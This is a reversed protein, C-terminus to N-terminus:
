AAFAAAAGCSDEFMEYRLIKGEGVVIHLAFASRFTKGTAPVEHAFNGLVIANDGDVLIRDIDFLVTKVKEAFASFMADIAESTSHRGVWPVTPSGAVVVEADAAFLALMGPRDGSGFLTFFEQVTEATGHPATTTTM